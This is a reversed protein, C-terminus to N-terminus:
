FGTGRGHQVLVTGSLQLGAWSTWQHSFAPWGGVRLFSSPVIMTGQDMVGVKTLILRM